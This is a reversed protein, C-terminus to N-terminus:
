EFITQEFQQIASMRTDAALARLSKIKEKLESIHEVIENQVDLPPLPIQIKRIKEQNVIPLTTKSQEATTNEKFYNMYVFAYEPLIKNTNFTIGTIQQNASAMDKDVLGVKGITSGIGVFLLDGKNFLRVKKDEIALKSVHREADELYMNGKIDAPTYFDISGSFYSKNRTPPTTGTSMKLILDSLFVFNYNGKYTVRINNLDWRSIMEKYQFFRLFVYPNEQTTKSQIDIGLVDKLHCVINEEIDQAKQEYQQALALSNNYATVIANQEELPPLPIEITLFVSPKVRAKSIGSTRASLADKFYQSQLLLVLFEGNVRKKDIKYAPYESSVGFPIAGNPHYYVCGHRVNIKSYILTDDDVKHVSGKFLKTDEQKRLFLKGSFNIKSIISWGNEILEEKTLQVDYPSLVDKLLVADEFKKNHFAYAKVDWRFFRSFDIFHLYKYTKSTTM